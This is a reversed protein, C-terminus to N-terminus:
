EGKLYVIMRSLVDTNDRVHGLAANCHHCLLGRVRGTEHCHDIHWKYRTGVTERGCIACAGNQARLMELYTEVTIGRRKCRQKLEIGDRMKRWKEPNAKKWAENREAVKHRNAAIWTRRYARRREANERAWRKARERERERNKAYYAKNYARWDKSPV